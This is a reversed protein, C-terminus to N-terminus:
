IEYEVSEALINFAQIKYDARTSYNEYVIWWHAIIIIYHRRIGKGINVLTDTSISKM